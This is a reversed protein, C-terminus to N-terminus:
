PDNALYITPPLMGAPAVGTLRKCTRAEATSATGLTLAMAAMAVAAMHIGFTM